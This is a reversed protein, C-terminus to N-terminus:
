QVAWGFLLFLFFGACLFFLAAADEAIWRWPLDRAIILFRM